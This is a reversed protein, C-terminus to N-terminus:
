QKAVTGRNSSQVAAAEEQKCGEHDAARSDVRIEGIPITQGGRVIIWFIGCVNL